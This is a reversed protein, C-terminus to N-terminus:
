SPMRMSATSAPSRITRTSIGRWSDPATFICSSRFRGTKNGARPTYVRLGVEGGPVPMKRDVVDHVPTSPAALQLSAARISARMEDVTQEWVPKRGAANLADLFGLTAADPTM